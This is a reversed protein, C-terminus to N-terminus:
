SCHAISIERHSSSNSTILSLVKPHLDFSVCKNSLRWHKSPLCFTEFCSPHNDRVKVTPTTSLYHQRKTSSYFVSFKIMDKKPLSTCFLTVWATWFVWTPGQGWCTRWWLRRSPSWQWTCPHRHLPSPAASPWHCLCMCGVPKNATAAIPPTM